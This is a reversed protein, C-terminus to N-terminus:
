LSSLPNYLRIRCDFLFENKRVDPVAGPHTQLVVDLGVELVAGLHVERITEQLTERITELHVEQLTEQPTELLTELHAVVIDQPAVQLEVEADPIEKNLVDQQVCKDPMSEIRVVSLFMNRISQFVRADKGYEVSGM